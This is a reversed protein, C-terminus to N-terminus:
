SGSTEDVGVVKAESHDENSRSKPIYHSLVRWIRTDHEGIIAAVAIVPMNQALLLILSDMLLTFGAHRRAWPVDILRVSRCKQCETRPVRAHIYTKFQFYNPHRWVKETTDYIHNNPTKCLACEFRSGATLDIHVDLRKEAVSLNISKVYWPDHLNLALKLLDEQSPNVSLLELFSIILGQGM